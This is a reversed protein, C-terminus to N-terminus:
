AAGVQKTLIEKVAKPLDFRGPPLQVNHEIKEVYTHTIIGDVKERSRHPYVIGDVSKFEGDRSDVAMKAKGQRITYDTKVVVGSDVAFYRTIPDCDLRPDLLVKYCTQGDIEAKGVCAISRYLEKYNTLDFNCALLMVAKEPGTAVRAGTTSNIEWVVDGDCGQQVTYLGPFETKIYWRNGRAQYAITSGGLDMGFMKM